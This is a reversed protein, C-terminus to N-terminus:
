RKMIERYLNDHDRKDKERAERLSRRREGKTIKQASRASKNTRSRSGSDSSRLIVTTGIGSKDPRQEVRIPLRRGERGEAGLGERQLPQWGYKVLYRHGASDQEVPLHTVPPDVHRIDLQRAISTGPINEASKFTVSNQAASGLGVMSRYLDAMSKPKDITALASEDTSAPVFKLRVYKTSAQAPWLESDEARQTDEM